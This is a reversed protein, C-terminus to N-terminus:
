GATEHFQGNRRTRRRWATLATLGGCMALIFVPEPVPTFSIVLSQSSGGGPGAIVSAYAAPNSTFAGSLTFLASVDAPTATFAGQPGIIGGAFTAITYNQQTPTPSFDVPVLNINFAGNSLDGLNLTGTGNIFDNTTGPAASSNASHELTYQGLRNWTMNGVNLTGIAGTGPSVTGGQTTTISSITVNGSINGTGSLTGGTGVAGTGTASVVGSGTGSGTTNTVALTGGTVSTAGSYTNANTLRVNGGTVLLSGAGATPSSDQIVDNIVTTGTATQSQIQLQRGATSGLTITSPALTSGLTLTAGSALNNTLVRNSTTLAIPGTLALNFSTGPVNAVFMGSTMTLANAVTRDGGAPELIPPTATDSVIVTGAGFPGATISGASGATSVGILVTGGGVTGGGITTTGTYTSAGNLTVSNNNGTNPNIMVGGTTGAPQQIVDNVVIPGALAALTLTMATTTPLTITSPAATSGIIMPGGGTPAAATGNQITRSTATMTIPGAFTLSSSDGTANDMLFGTTMIMQNSITQNGVPRLHQNTGNNVTIAGTGFPGATFPSNSSAGILIITGAGTLSTGGPYTSAANNLAVTGTNTIGLNGTFALPGNLTVSGAGTVSVSGSATGGGLAPDQIMDNVVFSGGASVTFIVTKGVGDGGNSVPNGLTITSSGPSVGYSVSTGATTISNNLTRTAALSNIINIPGNIAFSNTGTYTLGGNLDFANALARAGNIAQIQPSTTGTVLTNTVKGTGFATDSGVFVNGATNTNVNISTGGTYGNNGSVTFSNGNTTGTISLSAPQGGATNDSINGNLLTSAAGVNTVSLTGGASMIISGGFTLGTATTSSNTVTLGGGAHVIANVVEAAAVGTGVSITGGADVNFTDGSSLVGLTYAAAGSAFSINGIPQATGGLSISTNASGANFQATGGSIPVSPSWNGIDTWLNSSTGSWTSQAVGTSAVVLLAVVAFFKGRLPFHTILSFL